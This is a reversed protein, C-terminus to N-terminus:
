GSEEQVQLECLLNCMNGNVVLMYRLQKKGQGVRLTNCMMVDVILLWRWQEQEKCVCLVNCLVSNLFLM